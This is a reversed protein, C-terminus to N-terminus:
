ARACNQREVERGGPQLSSSISGLNEVYLANEKPKLSHHLPQAKVMSGIYPSPILRPVVQDRLGM